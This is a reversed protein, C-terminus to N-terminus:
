AGEEGIIIARAKVTNGQSAFGHVLTNFTIIDPPTYSRMEKFTKLASDL